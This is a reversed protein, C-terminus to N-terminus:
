VQFSKNIKYYLANEIGQCDSKKWFTMGIKELVRISAKNEPAVRGIITDLHFEDFGIKLSLSAAETAYGMNWFKRHFRFGLDVLHEENQKLGCWGLFSNNEKSIAVWRGFGNRKYETYNQLFLRAEGIDNFPTDGTYKMLEPDSNLVYFEEADSPSLQRLIIRESEAVVDM